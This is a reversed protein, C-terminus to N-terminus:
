KNYLIQVKKNAIGLIYGSFLIVLLTLVINISLNSTLTLLTFPSLIFLQHVIYVEYSYNDSWELIQCKKMNKFLIMLLTVISLALFMHSYSTIHAFMGQMEIMEYYKLYIYITNSVICPLISLALSISIVKLGYKKAFVSIFFGLM